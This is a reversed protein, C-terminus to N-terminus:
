PKAGGTRWGPGASREGARGGVDNWRIAAPGLFGAITTLTPARRPRRASLRRGRQGSARQSLCSARLSCGLCDAERAVDILRQTLATAQRRESHGRLVGAPCQLRGDARLACAGAGFRGQARGQPHAWELPGYAEEAAHPTPVGVAASGASLAPAWEISRAPDEDLRQGLAL